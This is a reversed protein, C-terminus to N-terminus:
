TLKGACIKQTLNPTHVDKFVSGLKWRNHAHVVIALRAVHDGRDSTRPGSYQEIPRKTVM